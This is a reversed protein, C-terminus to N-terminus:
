REDCPDAFISHHPKPVGSYQYPDIALDDEPDNAVSNARQAMDAQSDVDHGLGQDLEIRDAGGL